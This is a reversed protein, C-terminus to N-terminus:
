TGALCCRVGARITIQVDALIAVCCDQALELSWQRWWTVGTFLRKSPELSASPRATFGCPGGTPCAEHEEVAGCAKGGGLRFRACRPPPFTELTGAHENHFLARHLGFIQRAWFQAFRHPQRSITRASMQFVVRMEFESLAKRNMFRNVNNFTDVTTIIHIGNTSGETIIENLQASRPECEAEDGSM